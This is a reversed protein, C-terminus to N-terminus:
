KGPNSPGYYQSWVKKVAACAGDRANRPEDYDPDEMVTCLREEAARLLAAVDACPSPDLEAIVHFAEVMWRANGKAWSFDEGPFDRMGERIGRWHDQLRKMEAVLEAHASAVADRSAPDITTSM